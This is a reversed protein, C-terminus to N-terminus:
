FICANLERDTTKLPIKDIISITGNDEHMELCLIQNYPANSKIDVILPGSNNNAFVLRLGCLDPAMFLLISFNTIIHHSSSFAERGFHGFYKLFTTNTLPEPTNTSSIYLCIAMRLACHTNPGVGVNIERKLREDVLSLKAGNVCSFNSILKDIYYDPCCTYYVNSHAANHQLSSWLTNTLLAAQHFSRVDDYILLNMFKESRQADSVNAKLRGCKDVYSYSKSGHKKRILAGTPIASLHEHTREITDARERAILEQLYHKKEIDKTLIGLLAPYGLHTILVFNLNIDEPNRSKNVHLGGNKPFFPGGSLFKSATGWAHYASDERPQGAFNSECDSLMDHVSDPPSRSTHYFSLYVVAVSGAKASKQGLVFVGHRHRSSTINCINGGAFVQTFPPRHYFEVLRYDHDCQVQSNRLGLLPLLVQDKDLSHIRLSNERQLKMTKQDNLEQDRRTDWLRKKICVYVSPDDSHAISARALAADVSENELAVISDFHNGGVFFIAIIDRNDRDSEDDSEHGAIFYRVVPNEISEGLVYQLVRRHFLDCFGIAFFVDCFMTNNKRLSKLYGCFAELSPYQRSSEEVIQLDYYYRARSLMYDVVVHRLMTSTMHLHQPLSRLLAHVLCSGDDKNTDVRLQHKQALVTNFAALIEKKKMPEIAVRYAEILADEIIVHKREREHQSLKSTPFMYFRMLDLLNDRTEPIHYKEYQRAPYKKTFEVISRDTIKAELKEREKCLAEEKEISIRNLSPRYLTSLKILDSKNEQCVLVGYKKNSIFKIYQAEGALASVPKTASSDALASAPKATFKRSRKSTPPEALSLMSSPEVLSLMASPSSEALASVPKAASSDALASAPKATSKLSRKSTPPEALSLMSSPEALSLMASPSSEALASVPKAAPKEKRARKVSVASMSETREIKEQEDYQLLLVNKLWHFLQPGVRPHSGVISLEQQEEETFRKEQAVTLHTRLAKDPVQKRDAKSHWVVGIQKLRAMEYHILNIDELDKDDDAELGFVGLADTRLVAPHRSDFTISSSLDRKSTFRLKATGLAATFQTNSALSNNVESSEVDDSESDLAVLCRSSMM